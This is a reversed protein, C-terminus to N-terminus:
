GRLYHPETLDPKKTWDIQKKELEAVRRELTNMKETLERVDRRLEETAKEAM